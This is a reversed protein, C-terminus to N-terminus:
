EVMKEIIHVYQYQGLQSDMHFFEGDNEWIENIDNNKVVNFGEPMHTSYEPFSYEKNYL